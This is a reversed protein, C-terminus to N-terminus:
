CTLVRHKQDKSSMGDIVRVWFSGFKQSSSNGLRAFYAVLLDWVFHLQATSNPQKITPRNADEVGPSQGASEKLALALDPLSKSSIPDRWPMEDLDPFRARAELWIGVGEATKAHGVAAVKQLTKKVQSKDLAHRIGQVIVWGCQARLWVKKQGLRLLLDLIRPWRSEDQGFINAKVFCELGFLQGFFHNREEQGPVNGCTPNNNVLYELVKDFTLGPYKLTALDKEGFLQWLVETIVLSLGVRSANRGSALGRFLRRELHRQLEAESVGAQDPGGLLGQVLAHAASNRLASDEDGLFEYLAAEGARDGLVLNVSLQSTDKISDAPDPDKSISQKHRKQSQNPDGLEKGSRKRKRAM